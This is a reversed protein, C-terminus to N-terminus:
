NGLSLDKAASLIVARSIKRKDTISALHSQPHGENECADGHSSHCTAGLHLFRCRLRFRHRSAQSEVLDAPDCQIGALRACRLDHEFKV